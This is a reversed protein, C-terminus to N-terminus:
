SEYSTKRLNPQMENPISCLFIKLKCFVYLASASQWASAAQTAAQSVVPRSTPISVDFTLVHIEMSYKIHFSFSNELLFFLTYLAPM